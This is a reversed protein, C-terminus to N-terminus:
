DQKGKAKLLSAVDHETQRLVQFKIVGVTSYLIYNRGEGNMKVKEIIISM